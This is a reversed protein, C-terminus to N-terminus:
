PGRQHVNWCTYTVMAGELISTYPVIYGNTPQSPLGCNAIPLRLIYYNDHHILMYHDGKCKVEGPYPEWVGNETCTSTNPGIFILGSPCSFAINHGEM